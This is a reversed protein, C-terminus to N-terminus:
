TVRDGKDGEGQYPSPPINKKSSSRGELVGRQWWNLTLPSPLSNHYSCRRIMAEGRKFGKIFLRSQKKM